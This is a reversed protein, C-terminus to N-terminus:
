GFVTDLAALIAVAFYSAYEPSVTLPVNLGIIVGIILFLIMIM